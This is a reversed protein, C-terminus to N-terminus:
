ETLRHKIRAPVDRYTGRILDISARCRFIITSIENATTDTDDLATWRVSLVFEDGLYRSISGLVDSMVPGHRTERAKIRVTDGGKVGIEEVRTKFTEIGTPTVYSRPEDPAVKEVYYDKTDPATNTFGWAVKDTRGLVVFPVGPFTAGMVNM